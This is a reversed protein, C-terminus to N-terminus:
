CRNRRLVRLRTGEDTSFLSSEVQSTGATTSAHAAIYEAVSLCYKYANFWSNLLEGNEEAAPDAM